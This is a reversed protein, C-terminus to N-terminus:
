SRQVTYICTTTENHDHLSPPSTLEQHVGCVQIRIMSFVQVIFM